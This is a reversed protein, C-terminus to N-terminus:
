TSATPPLAASRRTSRPRCTACASSSPPSSRGTEPQPRTPEDAALVIFRTTNHEEDEIDRMLIKLGYDKAALESAIAALASIRRSASWAPRARGHRGGAGADPRAPAAHQPMPGLAQTHCLAQKVTPLSAGPLAM